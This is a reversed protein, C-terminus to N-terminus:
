LKGKYYSYFALHILMITCASYVLTSGVIHYESPLSNRVTVFVMGVVAMLITSIRYSVASAKENIKQIREDVMIEKTFRRCLRILLIAGVLGAIQVFIPMETVISWGIFAALALVIVLSCIRNTRSSM